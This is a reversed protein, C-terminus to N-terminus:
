QLRVKAFPRTCVVLLARVPPLRLFATTRAHVDGLEIAIGRGIRGSIGTILTTSPPMTASSTGDRRHSSFNPARGFNSRNTVSGPTM